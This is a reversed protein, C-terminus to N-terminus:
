RGTGLGALMGGTFGALAGLAVCCCCFLVFPLAVAALARLGSIRHAASLGIVLLVVYYIGGILDGCIPVISFLAAAEAYAAVRLTAEFGGGAGGLLMLCLHVIAAVVFLMVAIAIPGFLIQGLLGMGSSLMPMFRDLDGGRGGWSAGLTSSLVFRYLGSAILGIYGALVGYFLPGGIGGTVPMARFFAGPGTLVQQTTEVFAAALGVQQRREWPPGGPGTGGAPPVEAAPPLPPPPPSAGGTSVGGPEVPEGVALTDYGCAPCFRPPPEPLPQQCRPCQTM